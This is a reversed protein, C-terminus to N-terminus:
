LGISLRLRAVQTWTERPHGVLKIGWRPCPGAISSGVDRRSLEYQVMNSTNVELDSPGPHSPLSTAGPRLHTELGEMNTIRGGNMRNNKGPLPSSIQGDRITGAMKCTYKQYIDSTQHPWINVIDLREDQAANFLKMHFHNYCTWKSHITKASRITDNQVLANKVQELNSPNEDKSLIHGQLSLLVEAQKDDRNFM